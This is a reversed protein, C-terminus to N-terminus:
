RSLALGLERVRFSPYTLLEEITLSRHHVLRDSDLNPIYYAVSEDDQDVIQIFSIPSTEDWSKDHLLGIIVGTKGDITVLDGQKFM